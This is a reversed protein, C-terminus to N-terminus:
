VCSMEVESELTACGTVADRSVVRSLNTQQEAPELPECEISRMLRLREADSIYEGDLM